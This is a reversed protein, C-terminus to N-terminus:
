YSRPLGLVHDPDETFDVRREPRSATRYDSRLVGLIM